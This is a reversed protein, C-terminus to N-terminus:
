FKNLKPISEIMKKPKYSTGTAKQLKLDPSIKQMVKPYLIELKIHSVTYALNLKVVIRYVIDENDIDSQPMDYNKVKSTKFVGSSLTKEIRQTKKNYRYIFVKLHNYNVTTYSEAFENQAEVKVVLKGALKPDVMHAKMIEGTNSNLTFNHIVKENISAYGAGSAVVMMLCIAVISNFIKKM